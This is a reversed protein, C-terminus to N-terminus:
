VTVPLESSNFRPMIRRKMEVVLSYLGFCAFIIIIPEVPYRYRTLGAHTIYYVSPVSLIFFLIPAISLKRKLALLIGWLMFPLPLVYSIQALWALSFSLGMTKKNEDKRTFDNFWFQGIRQLTLWLFKEPNARIFAVAEDFSREMYKVEGLAAYRVFESPNTSPHGFNWPAMRIASAAIWAEPSNGLRLELGFNSRLMFRGFVLYNRAVWPMLTLIIAISFIGVLKIRSQVSFDARLFLWAMLFPYFAIIVPNVLAVFGAFLGYLAASKFDFRKSINLLWAILCMALFTFIATEWVHGVHYISVPHVALGLTAIYGVTRGFCTKAIHYIPICTLASVVSNLTLIALAANLSYVGFLKFILALLLPHLPMMWATPGSPERFPSSFGEGMAISRAIGGPEYGFAWSNEPIQSIWYLVFFFRLALAVLVIVYLIKRESLSKVLNVASWATFVMKSLRSDAFRNASITGRSFVTEARAALRGDPQSDTTCQKRLL